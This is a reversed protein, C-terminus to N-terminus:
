LKAHPNIISNHAAWNYLELYVGKGSLDFPLARKEQLELRINKIHTKITDLDLTLMRAIKRNSGRLPPYIWLLFIDIERWSLLQRLRVFGTETLWGKDLWELLRRRISEDGCSKLIEQRAQLGSTQEWSGVIRNARLAVEAAPDNLLPFFPEAYCATLRKLALREAFDPEIGRRIAEACMEAVIFPQWVDLNYYGATSLHSLSRRLYEGGKGPDGLAFHAKALYLHATSLYYMAKHVDFCMAADKLYILANAYDGTNAYAVGLMTGYKAKTVLSEQHQHGQWSRWALELSERARGPLALRLALIVGNPKGRGGQRYCEEAREYEYTDRYLHGRTIRVNDLLQDRTGIQRYPALMRDAEDLCAHAEAFRGQHRLFGAQQNTLWALSWDGLTLAKVLSYAEMNTRLADQGRGLDHYVSGLHRLLRALAINGERSGMQRFFGAAQEGHALAEEFRDLDKLAMMMYHALRGKLWLPRLPDAPLGELIEVTEKHKGCLWRVWGIEGLAWATGVEDGRELSLQRAQQLYEEARPDKRNGLAIGQYTLLDPYKVLIESPIHSLWAELQDFRATDVLALGHRLILGSARDFAQGLCYSAIAQEWEKRMELIEGLRIYLRGAEEQGYERLLVQLLFGRVIEHSHGFVTAAGGGLAVLFFSGRLRDLVAGADATDLLANCTEADLQRLVATRCLFDRAGADERNLMEEALFDYIKENPRSLLALFEAVQETGKGQCSTYLLYHLIPWGGIDRYIAEMQQQNLHLGMRRALELAEARTFALDEDSIRALLERGEWRPRSPWRPPQRSTIILCIEEPSNEVLYVLVHDIDEQQVSHYDELVIWLPEELAAMENVLAPLVISPLWRAGTVSMATAPEQLLPALSRGFGPLAVQIARLLNRTFAQPTKENLRELPYWAVPAALQQVFEAVAVSKGYGAAAELLIIRAPRCSSLRQVLRERLVHNRPLPKPRFLHAPIDM